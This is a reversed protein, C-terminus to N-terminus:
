ALAVGFFDINPTRWLWKELEAQTKQTEVPIFAVKTNKQDITTEGVAITAPLTKLRQSVIRADEAPLEIILKHM